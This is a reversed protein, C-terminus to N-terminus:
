SPPPTQMRWNGADYSAPPLPAPAPGGGDHCMQPPQALSGRAARPSLFDATSVQLCPPYRHEAVAPQQAWHSHGEQPPAPPTCATPGRAGHAAAGGTIGSTPRSSPTRRSHQPLGKRAQRLGPSLAKATCPKLQKAGAPWAMESSPGRASVRQLPSPLTNRVRQPTRQEGGRHTRWTRSQLGKTCHNALGGPCQHEPKSALRTGPPPPAPRFLRTAGRLQGERRQPEQTPEPGGRGPAPQARAPMTARASAATQVNVGWRTTTTNAVALRRSLPPAPARSRAEGGGPQTHTHKGGGGGGGARTHSPM